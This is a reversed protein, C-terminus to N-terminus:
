EVGTVALKFIFYCLYLFLSTLNEIGPTRKTASTSLAARTSAIRSCGKFEPVGAGMERDEALLFAALFSYGRGGFFCLLIAYCGRPSCQDLTALLM